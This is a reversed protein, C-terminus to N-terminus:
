SLICCKKGSVKALGSLEVRTYILTNHYVMKNTSVTNESFLLKIFEDYRNQLIKGNLDIGRQSAEQLIFYFKTEIFRKM